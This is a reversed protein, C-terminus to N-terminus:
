LIHVPSTKSRFRNLINAVAIAVAAYEPPLVDSLAGAVTAVGGLVNLWFTTSRFISKSDDFM